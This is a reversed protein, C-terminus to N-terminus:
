NYVIKNKISNIYNEFDFFLKEATNIDVEEFIFKFDEKFQYFKFLDAIIITDIKPYGGITPHEAALVIPNGDGPVQISGKIIGESSINASTIPKIPNDILRIGVRNINKSIKFKNTFFKEIISIKFYHM